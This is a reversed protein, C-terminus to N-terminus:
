VKQSTQSTMTYMGAEFKPIEDFDDKKDGEVM